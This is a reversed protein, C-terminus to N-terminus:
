IRLEVGVEKVLSNKIETEADSIIKSTLTRHPSKFHIRIAISRKGEPVGKGVYVDFITVNNVLKHNKILSELRAAPVYSDALLSLDRYSGPFKPISEFRSIEKPLHQLITALNLEFIAVPDGSIALREQIGPRLEGIVGITVEHIKIYATRGPHLNPDEGAVYDVKLELGSMFSDVVGKADFFDVKGKEGAWSLPFREGWLAGVAMDREEPLEDQRRLYTRGVEFISIRDQGYRQNMELTALLSGRLSTRLFEQEPSMPNLLRLPETQEVEKVLDLTREATISYSIVEQLGASVLLDKAKERLEREPQKEHQPISTALYTTPIREYGTTRALEEILDEEISIDSRWYPIHVRISRQDIPTTKFGLSNLVKKIQSATLGVGLIKKVSGIELVVTTKEPKGPYSDLIGKSVTGGALKQILGTARTLAVSALESNLGREFRYSAETKIELSASTRRISEPKFSASELLINTTSETVETAAGGMVGAIAVPKTYDAIVLMEATLKRHIGDITTLSEGKKARRVLITKKDLTDFDFAHLPQGYELMVYNTIDVINNIPRLGAKTLRDKMWQPSPGIKVGSILSATYRQALDPAENLLTCTQNIRPSREDYSHIPINVKVHSIAAVEYAVGLISLWDPRNPTVETEIITDGIYQSLPIGTPASEDLVLIGSEDEGLGLERESCVMGESLFGRINIAKLTQIKGSEPNTLKAGLKAFAIKQGQALNPGGCVVTMTEKGLNVTALRLRDANPHEQVKDVHGVFINDWNDGIFNVNSTELGAMTLKQGLEMPTMNVDVYEKLWQLPIKM